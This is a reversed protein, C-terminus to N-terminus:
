YVCVMNVNWQIVSFTAIIIQWILGLWLPSGDNKELGIWSAIDNAVGNTWSVQWVFLLVLVCESYVV